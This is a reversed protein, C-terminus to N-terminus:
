PFLEIKEIYELIGIMLGIAGIAVFFRPLIELYARSNIEVVTPDEPDYIVELKTGEPHPPTIGISLQQTIWEKKETLFRVVPYYVEDPRNSEKVNKYIIAEAKKGKLLLHNGKQWLVIGILLPAGSVIIIILGPDM